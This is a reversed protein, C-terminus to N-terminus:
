FCTRQGQAIVKITGWSSRVVFTRLGVLTAVMNSAAHGQLYITMSFDSLHLNTAKCALKPLLALRPCYTLCAGVFLYFFFRGSGNPILIVRTYASVCRSLMYIDDQIQTPSTHASKFQLSFKYAMGKQGEFGKVLFSYNSFLVVNSSIFM